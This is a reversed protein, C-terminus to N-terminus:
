NKQITLVSYLQVAVCGGCLWVAACSGLWVAVCLQVDVCFHM